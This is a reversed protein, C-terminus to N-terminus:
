IPDSSPMLPMFKSFQTGAPRRLGFFVNVAPQVTVIMRSLEACVQKTDDQSKCKNEELFLKLEAAAARAQNLSMVKVKVSDDECAEQRWPEECESCM